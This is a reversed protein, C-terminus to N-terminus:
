LLCVQWPPKKPRFSPSTTNYTRFFILCVLPVASSSGAFSDETDPIAFSTTPYSSPPMEPAPSSSVIHETTPPSLPCVASDTTDMAPEVESDVMRAQGYDDKGTEAMDGREFDEDARAKVEHIGPLCWEKIYEVFRNADRADMEGKRVTAESLQLRRKGGAMFASNMVIAPGYENHLIADLVNKTYAFQERTSLEKFAEASPSPDLLAPDVFDPSTDPYLEAEDEDDNIDEKQKSEIKGLQSLCSVNALHANPLSM